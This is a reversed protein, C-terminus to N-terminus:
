PQNAVKDKRPFALFLLTQPQGWILKEKKKPKVLLGGNVEMQFILISDWVVWYLKQAVGIYEGLAPKDAALQDENSVKEGENRWHTLLLYFFGGFGFFGLGTNKQM